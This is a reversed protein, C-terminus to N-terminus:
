CIRGSSSLPCQAATSPRPLLPGHPVHSCHCKFCTPGAPPAPSPTESFQFDSEGRALDARATTLSSDLPKDCQARGPVPWRGPALPRVAPPSTLPPPVTAALIGGHRAEVQEPPALPTAPRESRVSARRVWSTRLQGQATTESRLPHKLPSRPLGAGTGSHPWSSRLAAGVAKQEPPCIPKCQTQEHADGFPQKEPSPCWPFM